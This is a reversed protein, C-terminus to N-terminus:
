SRGGKGSVTQVMADIQDSLVLRPGDTRAAIVGQRDVTFLWPESPLDWDTVAPALTQGDDIYIECHIFTVDGWGRSTRVSELVSVSAGCVATECYAPTALTLAVLREERLAQDLPLVDVDVDAGTVPENRPGVLGLAFPQQEGVLQEFSASVVSLSKDAGPAIQAVPNFAQQPSPSPAPVARSRNNDATEGCAVLM